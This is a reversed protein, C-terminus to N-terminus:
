SIRLTTGNVFLPQGNLKLINPLTTTTAPEATVTGDDTAWVFEAVPCMADDYPCWIQTQAGPDRAFRTVTGKGLLITNGCVSHRARNRPPRVYGASWQKATIDQRLTSPSEPM